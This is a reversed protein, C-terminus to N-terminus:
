WHWVGKIFQAKRGPPRQATRGEALAAHLRKVEDRMQDNEKLAYTLKIELDAVQDKLMGIYNAM